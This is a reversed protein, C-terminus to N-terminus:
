ILFNVTYIPLVWGALSGVGGFCARKGRLNYISQVDPLSGKKVVAVAYQYDLGNEYIEQMIPILSHYRGGVFVEGADVTTLHVQGADLRNMCEEKDFAQTCNLSLYDNRFAAIKNDVARSFALCKEQESKSM